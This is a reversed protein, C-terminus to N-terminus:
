APRARQGHRKASGACACSSAAPRPLDRDAARRGHWNCPCLCGAPLHARLLPKIHIRDSVEVMSTLHNPLRFSRLSDPTLFLALSNAQHAWFADDGEVEAVAAEIPWISRKEVGAAELQDVAEKALGRLALRDKQAAETLPTTALYISVCPGGRTQLLKLIESRTPLDIHLM